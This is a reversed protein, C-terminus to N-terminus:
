DGKNLPSVRLVLDDPLDAEPERALPNWVHVPTTIKPREHGGDDRANIGVSYVVYGPGDRRYVMKGGSFFDQDARRVEEKALAALAEPYAGHAGRYIELLLGLEALRGRMRTADDYAYLKVFDHNFCLCLLMDLAKRVPDLRTEAREAIAQQMRGVERLATNREAYTTKRAANVQADWLTNCERMVDDFKVPIVRLGLWERRREGTVEDPPGDAGRGFRAIDTIIDLVMAREALDMAEVMEPMATLGRLSDLFIKAEDVSMRGGLGVEVGRYAREVMSRGVIRQIVTPGQM